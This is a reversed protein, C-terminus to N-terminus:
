SLTWHRDQYHVNLNWLLRAIQQGAELRDTESSYNYQMGSGKSLLEVARGM